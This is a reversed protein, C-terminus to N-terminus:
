ARERIHVDVEREVVGHVVVDHHDPRMVPRKLDIQVLIRFGERSEDSEHLGALRRALQSVPVSFRASVQAMPPQATVVAEPTAQNIDEEVDTVKTKKARM